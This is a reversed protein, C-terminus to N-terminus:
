KKFLANTQSAAMSKARLLDLFRNQTSTARWDSRYTLGISRYSDTLEIDLPIALGQDIERSMQHRSMITVYNGLGLLGRVLVLSSSVTRVPTNPLDPIRLVEALYRGAPTEKPPAIWPYSLTDEIKPKRKKALPHNIGVIISLPDDFLREQIIDDSPAPNRLAGILLDLDAKRLRKLLEPYPGDIAIIQVNETEQLLTHIADPLISTRALPMSGIYIKSSDKGKFSDIEELGQRLEAAALKVQLVFAEAAQTLDVGKSNSIFFDFGALKELDRAARHISPQSLNVSRAAMSFNGTESIAILAKLQTATILDHFNSFGEKKGRGALRNAQESGLTLYEFLREIRHFLINSADTPFLGNSHRSFLTVGLREELKSIAQTVAPQSLHVKKAAESISHTNVVERYARLHRINPFEATM